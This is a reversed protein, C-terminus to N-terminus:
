FFVNKAKKWSETISEKELTDIYLSIYKIPFRSNLVIRHRFRLLSFILHYSFSLFSSIFINFVCYKMKMQLKLNIIIIIYNNKNCLSGIMQDKAEVHM